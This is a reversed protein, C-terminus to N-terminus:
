RQADWRRAGGAKSRRENKGANMPDRRLEDNLDGIQGPSGVAKQTVCNVDSKAFVLRRPLHPPFDLTRYDSQRSRLKRTPRIAPRCLDGPSPGTDEGFSFIWEPAGIPKAARLSPRSGRRCSDSEPNRPLLHAAQAGAKM